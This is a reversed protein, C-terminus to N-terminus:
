PSSRVSISRLILEQLFGALLLLLILFVWFGWFETFTLILTMYEWMSSYAPVLFYAGVIGVMLALFCIIYNEILFQVLLQRRMGGVVKRLGIEMLRKGASAIATNAFNFCAILLITLAMILPALIAAPHLGPMLGSNWTDRSNKNVEKLPVINFGNIIFSENAENQVPIYKELDKAIQPIAEPDPVQIFLARAFRQWHTDDM